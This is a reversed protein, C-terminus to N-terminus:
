PIAAALTHKTPRQWALDNRGIDAKFAQIASERPILTMGYQIYLALVMHVLPSPKRSARSSTLWLSGYHETFKAEDIIPTTYHYSQWFLRLSYEEKSKFFNESALYSKLATPYEESDNGRLNRAKAFVNSVANPQILDDLEPLQLTLGIHPSLKALFLALSLLGSFLIGVVRQGEFGGM